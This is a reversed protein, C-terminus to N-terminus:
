CLQSVPATACLGATHDGDFAAVCRCCLAIGSAAADQRSIRQCTAGVVKRGVRDVVYV